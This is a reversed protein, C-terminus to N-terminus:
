RVIKKKLVAMPWPTLNTSNLFNVPGCETNRKTTSYLHILYYGKSTIDSQSKPAHQPQDLGPPFEIRPPLTEDQQTIRDLKM